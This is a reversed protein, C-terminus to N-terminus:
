RWDAFTLRPLGHRARAEDCTIDREGHALSAEVERCPSPRDPYITCRCRDGVTGKLAACRPADGETGALLAYRPTPGPLVHPRLAETVETRDFQVPWTACCAGCARCPHIM